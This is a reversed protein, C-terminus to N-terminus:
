QILAEKRERLGSQKGSWTSSAASVGMQGHSGFKQFTSTLIERSYQQIDIM